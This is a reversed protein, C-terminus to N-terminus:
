RTGNAAEKRRAWAARMAASHQEREGPQAWRERSAACREQRNHAWSSLQALSRAEHRGAPTLRFHWGPRGTWAQHRTIKVLGSAALERVCRRLVAARVNGALSALVARTTKPSDSRRAIAHLVRSRLDPPETWAHRRGPRQAM